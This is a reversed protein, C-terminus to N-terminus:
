KLKTRIKKLTFYSSIVTTTLLLFYIWWPINTGFIVLYINASNFVFFSVIAPLLISKNQRYNKVLWAVSLVFLPTAVVHIGLFIVPNVRYNEGLAIYYHKIAEWIQLMFFSLSLLLSQLLQITYSM